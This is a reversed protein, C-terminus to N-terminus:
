VNNVDHRIMEKIRNIYDNLRFQKILQRLETTFPLYASNLQEMEALKNLIGKAYGIQGLELLAQLKEQSPVLLMPQTPTDPMTKRAAAPMVPVGSASVWEIQLQQRIKSLLENYPVPKILFDNHLPPDPREHLNEFANASVFIIPLQRLGRARIARAVAWGDMIPMAIDLLVLDPLQRNLQEM